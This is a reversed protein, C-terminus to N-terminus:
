HVFNDRRADAAKVDVPFLFAADAGGDGVIIEDGSNCSALQLRLNAAGSRTRRRVGRHLAGCVGNRAGIDHHHGKNITVGAHRGKRSIVMSDM